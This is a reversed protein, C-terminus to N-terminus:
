RSPEPEHISRPHGVVATTTVAAIGLTALWWGQWFGFGLQAIVFATTMVALAAAPGARDGPMRPIGRIAFALLTAFLAVGVLGLELWIQILANHTHLPLAPGTIQGGEPTTLLLLEADGGPFMRAANLGWGFIPRELIHEAAFQWIVFRHVEPIHDQFNALLLEIALPAVNDLFPVILVSFAIAAAFLIKALRFSMWAVAFAAAGILFALLPTLPALLFVAVSSLVIFTVAARRGYAKAISIAIPWMLIAIASATRNLASLKHIAMQQEQVWITHGTIVAILFLTLAIGAVAGYILSQRFCIRETENLSAAADVLLVLAAAMLVLVGVTELSRSWDIAWLTSIAGWAIICALITILAPYTRPWSGGAAVRRLVITLTAAVPPMWLQLPAIVAVTPVLFALVYLIPADSSLRFTKFSDMALEKAAAM